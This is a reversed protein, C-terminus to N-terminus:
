GGMVIRIITMPARQPDVTITPPLPTVHEVSDDLLVGLRVLADLVPKNAVIGFNDGDRRRHQAFVMEISITVGSLKSRLKLGAYLCAKGVQEMFESRDRYKTGFHARSNPSQSAPPLMPVTITLAKARAATSM